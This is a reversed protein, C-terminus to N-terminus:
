YGRFFMLFAPLHAPKKLTSKLRQCQITELLM